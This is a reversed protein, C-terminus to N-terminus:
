IVKVITQAEAPLMSLYVPQKLIEILYRAQQKSIFDFSKFKEDKESGPASEKTKEGGSKSPSDINEMEKFSHSPVSKNPLDFNDSIEKSHSVKPKSNGKKMRELHEKYSASMYHGSTGYSPTKEPKSAAKAPKPAEAPMLLSDVSEGPKLLSGAM